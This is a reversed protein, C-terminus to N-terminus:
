IAQAGLETRWHEAREALLGNRAFASVEAPLEELVEFSLGDAGHENWAQQMAPHPSGGQGLMFWLRNRIKDLVPSTGVWVDGTPACRVAYVGSPAKREKYAAIAAKRDDRNM